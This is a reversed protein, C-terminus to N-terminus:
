KFEMNQDEIDSPVPPMITDPTSTPRSEADIHKHTNFISIMQTLFNILRQSDIIFFTSGHNINFIIKNDQMDIILDDEFTAENPPSLSITAAAGKLILPMGQVTLAANAKMTGTTNASVTFIMSSVSYNQNATWSINTANGNINQNAILKIDNTDLSINTNEINFKYERDKFDFLVYVSSDDQVEDKHFKLKTIRFRNMDQELSDFHNRGLLITVPRHVNDEEFFIFCEDNKKPYQPFFGTKSQNFGPYSVVNTIIESEDETKISIKDSLIDTIFARRVNYKKNQPDPIRIYM